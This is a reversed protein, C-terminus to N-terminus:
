DKEVARIEPSQQFLLVQAHERGYASRKTGFDWITYRYETKEIFSSHFLYIEELDQRETNTVHQVHPRWDVETLNPTSIQCMTRM